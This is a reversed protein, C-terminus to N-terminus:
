SIKDCEVDERRELTSSIPASAVNAEEKDSSCWGRLGFERAATPDRLCGFSGRTLEKFPLQRYLILTIM